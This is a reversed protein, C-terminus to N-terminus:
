YFRVVALNNETAALGLPTWGAPGPLNVNAGNEIASKLAQAPANQNILDNLKTPAVAHANMISLTLSFILLKKM